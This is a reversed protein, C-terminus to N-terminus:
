NGKSEVDNKMVRVRIYSNIVEVIDDDGDENEGLKKYRDGGWWSEINCNGLNEVVKKNNEKPVYGIMYWKDNVASVHIEIANQDHENAKDHILRANIPTEEFKYVREDSYLDDIMAKKSVKFNENEDLMDANKLDEFLSKLENEYFSTGHAYFEGVFNARDRAYEAEFRAKRENEEMEQKNKAKVFANYAVFIIPIAIGIFSVLFSDAILGVVFLIVGIIILIITMNM